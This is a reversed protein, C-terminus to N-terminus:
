ISKMMDVFEAYDILGNGDKDAAAVMEKLEESTLREGLNLLAHRLEEETIYGDGNRDFVRFAELLEADATPANEESYFHSLMLAVFEEFDIVGNQDADVSEMMAQLEDETPQQGLAQMVLALEDVTITGDGDKDFVAFADKLEARQEATLVQWDAVQWDAYMNQADRQPWRTSDEAPTRKTNAGSPAALWYSDDALALM